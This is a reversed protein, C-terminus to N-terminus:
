LNTLTNDKHHYKNRNFTIKPHSLSKELIEYTKYSFKSMKKILQIHHYKYMLDLNRPSIFPQAKNIREFLECNEKEIQQTTDKRRKFAIVQKKQDFKIFSDNM